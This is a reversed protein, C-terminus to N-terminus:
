KEFIIIKEFIENHKITIIIRILISYSDKIKKNNNNNNNKKWDSM